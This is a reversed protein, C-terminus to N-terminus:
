ASKVASISSTIRRFSSRAASASAAERRRAATRPSHLKEQVLHEVRLNRALQALSSKVRNGGDLDGFEAGEAVTVDECLRCIGATDQDALVHLIEQREVHLQRSGADSMGTEHQGSVSLIGAGLLPDTAQHLGQRGHARLWLELERM